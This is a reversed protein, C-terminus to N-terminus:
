RDVGSSKAAPSEGSTTRYVGNFWGTTWGGSPTRERAAPSRSRSRSPDRTGNSVSLDDRSIHDFSNSSLNKRLGAASGYALDEDPEALNDSGLNKEERALATRLVDLRERQTAIFKAKEAPSLSAVERPLLTGSASLEEVQVDRSKGTSTVTAVASSLVSYLDTAPASLSSAAVAPLNFRSILSQAYGAAGPPPPPAVNAARQQPPLGLIKERVLDVLQYFYQLGATKAREHSRGIFEDIEREHHELFPEVYEQYLVRAGQTQPLVLYAMFGLRIWSYFPFWGIIFVTWSEALLVGTLVVWYMLWPALQRPDATRIAKYSAFAPFLISIVSSLFDAVIGFM